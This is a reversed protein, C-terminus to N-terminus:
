EGVACEAMEGFRVDAYIPFHDSVFRGNVGVTVTRYVATEVGPKTLICDIYYEAM